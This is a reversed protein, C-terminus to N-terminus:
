RMNRRIWSVVEEFKLKGTSVERVIIWVDDDKAVFEKGNEKLFTDVATTGTRKNGDVFPHGTLIGYFLTAAIRDITKPIKSQDVVFDLNGYSIIGSHGGSKGIIKDHIEIIEDTTLYKTM